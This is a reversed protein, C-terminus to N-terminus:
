PQLKLWDDLDDASSFDLLAEGLSELQSISLASIKSEANSSITGVRRTLQRLILSRAERIAGTQEGPQEGIKEGEQLAEQYVKTQKLESLGLMNEIEKRGLLPFLDKQYEIWHIM